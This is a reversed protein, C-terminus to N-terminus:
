SEKERSTRSSGEILDAIRRLEDASGITIVIKGKRGGMSVEVRTGLLDTLREAMDLVGPSQTKIRSEPPNASGAERARRVMEETQRVSLAEAAVRQATREQLPHGTLGLLARGHAGSLKGDIIMKKIQDPLELLRLANTVTPRSVGMREALVEHTFGADEILQAFAAAEELPNLDQRQLNEVLARELSGIDDTEVVLAPIVSLGANRSARWRREGMVIEYGGEERRRVVVPQLLGLQKISAALDSLAEPDFRKRPQNPNSVILDIQIEEMVRAGTPILASLGRGLGGRPNM